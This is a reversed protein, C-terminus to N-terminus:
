KLIILTGADGSRLVRLTGGGAIWDLTHASDLGASSGGYVGPALYRFHGNGKPVALACVTAEEGSAVELTGGTYTMWADSKGQASGFANAGAGPAVAITGGALVINTTAIWGSGAAFRVTGRDVELTGTTSSTFNTFTISGAANFKIGAAGTVKVPVVHNHVADAAIELMAPTASKLTTYVTPYTTPVWGPYFRLVTQDYGNLDLVSNSTRYVDTNSSMCVGGNKALVNAGECKVTNKYSQITTWNNSPASIHVTGGYDIVFTSPTNLGKGEIWIHNSVIRFSTVGASENTVGGVFHVEGHFYTECQSISGSKIFSVPGAMYLKASSSSNIYAGEQNTMGSHIRLPTENTLSGGAPSSTIFRPLAGWVTTFRSTAGLGKMNYIYPQSATSINTIILPALLSSNDACFYTRGYSRLTLPTIATNAIVPAANSFAANAAVFWTQPQHSQAAYIEIPCSIRHQVVTSDVANTITLGGDGLLIKANGDAASLTFAANTVIEISYASVVGSVVAQATGEGFVLRESGDFAPAEGGKWNAASSLADGDSGGIWTFVHSGNYPVYIRGNGSLQDIPTSDGPSPNDSGTYYRGQELSVGGVNFSACALDLDPSIEVVSSQAVDFAVKFNAFPSVASAAKFRANAGMQLSTLGILANTTAGMDFTAGDAVEVRPVNPFTTTGTLAITGNSVILDGSTTSARNVFTQKLSGDDPWYVLTIKDRISSGTTANATAKLTLVPTGSSSTIRCSNGRVASGDVIRNLVQSHGNLRLDGRDERGTFSLVTNPSLVNDKELIFSYYQINLTGIKNATSSLYNVGYFPNEYTGDCKTVEVPGNCRIAQSSRPRFYVTSPVVLRGNLTLTGPGETLYTYASQTRVVDGNFTCSCTSNIVALKATNSTNTIFNDVVSGGANVEVSGTLTFPEGSLNIANAGHLSLSGYTFDGLDNVVNIAAGALNSIVISDGAEPAGNNWNATTSLSGNGTGIWATTKAQVMAATIGLAVLAFARGLASDTRKTM